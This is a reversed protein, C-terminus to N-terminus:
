HAVPRLNSVDSNSFTVKVKVMEEYNETEYAVTLDYDPTPELYLLSTLYWGLATNEYLRPIKM